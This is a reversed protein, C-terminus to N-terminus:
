DGAELNFIEENESTIEAAKMYFSKAEDIYKKLDKATIKSMKYDDDCIVYSDSKSFEVLSRKHKEDFNNINALFPLFQTLKHIGASTNKFLHLKSQFTDHFPPIKHFARDYQLIATMTQEVGTIINSLVAILIKNDGLKPYTQTLMHDAARIKSLAEKRAIQFKQM